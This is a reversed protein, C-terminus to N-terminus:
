MRITYCTMLCIITILFVTIAVLSIDYMTLRFQSQVTTKENHTSILRVGCNEISFTYLTKETSTYRHCTYSLNYQCNNGLVNLESTNYVRLEVGHKRKLEVHYQFSTNYCTVYGLTSIYYLDYVRNEEAEKATWKIGTYRGETPCALTLATIQSAGNHSSNFHTNPRDERHITNNTINDNILASTTLNLLKNTSNVHSASDSTTTSHDFTTTKRLNVLADTTAYTITSQPTEHERDDTPTTIATHPTTGQQSTNLATAREDTPTTAIAARPTQQSVTPQTLVRALALYFITSSLIIILLRM